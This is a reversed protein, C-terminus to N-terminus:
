RAHHTVLKGSLRKKNEAVMVTIWQPHGVAHITHVGCREHHPVEPCIKAAGCTCRTPVAEVSVVQLPGEEFAARLHNCCAQPSLVVWDGTQFLERDAM